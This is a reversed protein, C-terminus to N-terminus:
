SDLGLEHALADIRATAAPDGGFDHRATALAARAKDIENM